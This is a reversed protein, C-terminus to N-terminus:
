PLSTRRKGLLILDPLVLVSSIYVVLIAFATLLGFSEAIPMALVCSVCFGIITSLVGGFVGAGQSTLVQRVAEESSVSREQRVEQFRELIHIPYDVGLGVVIAGITLNLANLNVGALPMIGLVAAVSLFLPAMALLSDIWRRWVLLLLLFNPLLSAFFSLISDRVYSGEQIRNAVNGGGLRVTIGPIEGLGLKRIEEELSRCFSRVEAGAKDKVFFKFLLGDYRGGRKRILHEAEERYSKDLVHNATEGSEAIEDLIERIPMGPTVPYGKKLILDNISEVHAKGFIKEVIPYDKMREELLRMKEFIVPNEVPGEILVYGVQDSQGFYEDNIRDAQYSPMARRLFTRESSEADIKLSSFLSAFFFLLCGASPSRTSGFFRAM